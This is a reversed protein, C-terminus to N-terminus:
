VLDAEMHTDEGPWTQVAVVRYERFDGPLRVRAGENLVHRYSADCSIHTTSNINKGDSTVVVRNGYSWNALVPEGPGFGEGWAGDGAFPEVQITQMWDGFEENISM